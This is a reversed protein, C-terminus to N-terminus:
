PDLQGFLCGHARSLFAYRDQRRVHELPTFPRPVKVDHGHNVHEFGNSIRYDHQPLGCGKQCWTSKDDYSSRVAHKM